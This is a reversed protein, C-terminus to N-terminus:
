ATECIAISFIPDFGGSNVNGAQLIVLCRDDLMPFQNLDINGNSDAPVIDIDNVGFRLLSKGSFFLSIWFIYLCELIIEIAQISALFGFGVM